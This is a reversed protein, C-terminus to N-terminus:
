NVDQLIAEHQCIWRGVDEAMDAGTKLAHEDYLAQSTTVQDAIANITLTATEQEHDFTVNGVIQGAANFVDVEGDGTNPFAISLFRQVGAEIICTDNDSFHAKLYDFQDAAM